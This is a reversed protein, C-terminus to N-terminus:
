NCENTIAGQEVEGSIGGIIERDMLKWVKVRTRCKVYNVKEENKIRPYGVVLRHQASCEKGPIVKVNVVSRQSEYTSM